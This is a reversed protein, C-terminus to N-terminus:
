RAHVTTEKLYKKLGTVCNDWGGDFSTFMQIATDGVYNSIGSHELLLMTGGETEQLSWKVTTEVNTDAVIWTYELIYPDAQKIEGTIQTCGNEGDSTFTYHFGKEAKFDTKLFWASIDEAQTIAKWVKNIPHELLLEKTISDKMINSKQNIICSYPQMYLSDVDIRM